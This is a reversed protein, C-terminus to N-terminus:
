RDAVDESPELVVYTKGLWDSIMKLIESDSITTNDFGPTDVFVIEYDPFSMKTMGIESTCSELDHGIGVDVGTAASIFQERESVAYGLLRSNSM